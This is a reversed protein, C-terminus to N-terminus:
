VDGPVVPTGVWTVSRRTLYARLTGPLRPLHSRTCAPADAEHLEAAWQRLRENQAVLDSPSPRRASQADAVAEYNYIPAPDGRRDAHWAM